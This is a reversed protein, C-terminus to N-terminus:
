VLVVRRFRFVVRSMTGIVLVEVPVLIACQVSRTVLLVAFPTGYLLSIWLTNVLLGLVLQNIAVAALIRPLSQNKHLLVGFVVGTLACTLTFGPFYPGIPFLVAGLFDGIAGVLAAPIAGYLTAAIFVPLFSFGIKINWANISLFRSLIIQLAVLLGITVITKTDLKKM